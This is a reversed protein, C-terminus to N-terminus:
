IVEVRGVHATMIMHALRVEWCAICASPSSPSKCASLSTESSFKLDFECCMPVLTSIRGANTGNEEEMKRRGHVEFAVSTCHMELDTGPYRPSVAGPSKKNVANIHRCIGTVIETASCPPDGASRWCRSTTHLLMSPSGKVVFCLSSLSPFPVNVRGKWVSSVLRMSALHKHALESCWVRRSWIVICSPYWSDFLLLNKRSCSDWGDHPNCNRSIGKAHGWPLYKNCVSTTPSLHTIHPVRSAYNTMEHDVM